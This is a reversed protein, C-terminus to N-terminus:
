MLPRPPLVIGFEDELAAYLERATTLERVTKEEGDRVTLTANSIYVAGNPRRLNVIRNVSFPSGAAACFANPALFDVEEQRLTCIHLLPESASREDHFLTAWAGRTGEFRFDAGGSSQREGSEFLLAGFPSLGGFGVDCFYKEAGLQVLSIRHLPPSVADTGGAVRAICPTVDYGLASLLAAFIANLEFCYGGRRRAVIKDFLAPIELEPVRGYECVDLNEFPVACQHAAVLRDLMGREPTTEGELGIRDLYRRTQEGTM